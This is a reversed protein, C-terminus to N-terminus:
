RDSNEDKSGENRSTEKEGFLAYIKNKLTDPSFPKALFDTVGNKRALAIIEETSNGTIIFFPVTAGDARSRVTRLLDLGTEEPMTLDSIILDVPSLELFSQAQPVDAAELVHGFGMQRLIDGIIKRMYGYDDVVLVRM